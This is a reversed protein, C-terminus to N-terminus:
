NFYHALKGIFAAKGGGIKRGREERGEQMFNCDCNKEGRERLNERMEEDPIDWKWSVNKYIKNCSYHQWDLM